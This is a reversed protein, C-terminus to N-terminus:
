GAPISQELDTRSGYDAPQLADIDGFYSAHLVEPRAALEAARGALVARGHRLVIAHDAIALALSVHQEVLLVGIGQEDAIRRVVPALRELVVPALGLSM